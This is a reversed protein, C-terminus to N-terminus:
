FGRKIKSEDNDNDKDKDGARGSPTGILVVGLALGALLLIVFHTRKVTTVEQPSISLNTVIGILCHRVNLVAKSM